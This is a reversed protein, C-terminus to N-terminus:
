SQGRSTRDLLRASAYVARTHPMTVGLRDGLEVVAGAIRQDITIPLEMGLKAAAETEGNYQPGPPV